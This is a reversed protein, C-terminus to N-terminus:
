EKAGPDKVIGSYSISQRDICSVSVSAIGNPAITLYFDRQNQLDKTNLRVTWKGNKGSKYQYEFKRSQFKFGGDSSGIQTQYVRGMYPLDCFLTDNRLLLTYGADLQRTGGKQPTATQANFTFSRSEVIAKIKDKTNQSFAEFFGICLLLLLYNRSKRLTTNM